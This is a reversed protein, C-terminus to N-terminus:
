VKENIKSFINYFYNDLLESPKKMEISKLFEDDLINDWDRDIQKKSDTKYM